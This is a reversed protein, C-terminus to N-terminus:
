YFPPANNRFDYNNFPDFHESRDFRDFRESRVNEVNPSIYTNHNIWPTPQPYRRDIPPPIPDDYNVVPKKNKISVFPKRDEAVVLRVRKTVSKLLDEEIFSAKDFNQSSADGLVTAGSSYNLSNTLGSGNFSDFNSQLSNSEAIRNTKYSINNNTIGQGYYTNNSRVYVREPVFTVEVLGNTDAGRRVGSMGAQWSNDKVFTFRRNNHAPREILIESDGNLRWKGMIEDDIKLTANVKLNYNNIMRVAYESNHTLTYYTHGNRIFNDNTDPFEDNGFLSFGFWGSSEKKPTEIRISYLPVSHEHYM